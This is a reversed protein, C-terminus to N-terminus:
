DTETQCAGEDGAKMIKAGERALARKRVYLQRRERGEGRGEGGRKDGEISGRLATSKRSDM